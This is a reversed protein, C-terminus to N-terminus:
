VCGLYAGIHDGEKFVREEVKPLKHREKFAKLEVDSAFFPIGDNVEFVDKNDILNEFIHILDVVSTKISDADFMSDASLAAGHAVMLEPHEPVLIDEESLELRESFVKILTPNFTLPGGEFVVPKRIELGQALGGITQKAIAHLSSLALDQKLVGQNVM